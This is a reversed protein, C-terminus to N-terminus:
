FVWLLVVLIIFFLLYLLPIVRSLIRTTTLLDYYTKGLIRVDKLSTEGYSFKADATELASKITSEIIEEPLDERVLLNKLSLSHTDTTAVISDKIGLKEAIRRIRRKEGPSFGNADAIFYLTKGKRTEFVLSFVSLSDVTQFGTGIKAPAADADELEFVIAEVMQEILRSEKTFQEVNFCEKLPLNPHSDIFIMRKSKFKDRLGAFISVDYDDIVPSSLFILYINNLRQGMIRIGDKELEVIGTVELQSYKRKEEKVAQLIQSTVDSSPNLEHNSPVHLIYSDGFNYNLRSICKTSLSGGGVERLPGSHLWPAVIVKETEGQKFMLYQLLADINHGLRLSSAEGRVGKLFMSLETFGSMGYFVLSFLHDSFLLTGASFAIGFLMLLLPFLLDGPAFGLAAIVLLWGIAPQVLSLSLTRPGMKLGSIATFTLLWLTFCLTSWIVTTDVVTVRSSFLFVAFAGAFLLLNILAMFLAWRTKFHPIINKILYAPVLTMVILGGAFLAPHIAFPKIFLDAALALLYLAMRSSSSPITRLSKESTSNM